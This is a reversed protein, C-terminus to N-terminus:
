YRRWEFRYGGRDSRRFRTDPRISLRLWTPVLNSAISDGLLNAAIASADIFSVKHKGVEENITQKMASSPFVTDPNNIFEATVSEAANIIAHSREVNM